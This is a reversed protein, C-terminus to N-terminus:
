LNAASRGAFGSSKLGKIMFIKGSDPSISDAQKQGYFDSKRISTTVFLTDLHEGGYVAGTVTEVPLKITNVLKGTSCILSVSIKSDFIHAMFADIKRPISKPWRQNM